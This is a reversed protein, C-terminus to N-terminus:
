GASHRRLRCRDHFGCRQLGYRLRLCVAPCSCGGGASIASRLQGDRAPATPAPCPSDKDRGASRSDRLVASRRHTAWERRPRADITYNVIRESESRRRSAHARDGIHDRKAPRALVPLHRRDERAGDALDFRDLLEAARRRGLRHRGAVLVMNEEGTLLDDVASFAETVGIAAHVADPDCAEDHGAVRMDGGDATILTSSRSSPPRAPAAPASCRSSGARRSAWTAGRGVFWFYGEADRRVLDGSLYWGGAFAKRYRAEEHLYGRFMAPWGARLILEGAEDPDDILVPAGDRLVVDGDADRGAIAAEIGPLPRGMSGPKIDTAAFNAVMIGGTETQWWNDHIPLGLTREGWVVAEPNLPEGVSAIFRLGPLEHERALEPRARMLMRIATPASYWVTVAQEALTRYTIDVTDGRRRGSARPVGACPPACV